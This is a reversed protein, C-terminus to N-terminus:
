KSKNMSKRHIRRVMKKVRSGMAIVGYYLRDTKFEEHLHVPANMIQDFENDDIRLNEKIENFYSNMMKEDYLPQKLVDLAESRTLQDSIIMSSLHSTRKDVGFKKTFWVLQIFATLKNELHKAGYYQFGCFQELEKFARNRNYDIYNLPKREKIGLEFRTALIRWNSTFRLKDIGEEGYKHYIDMLNVKDRASHTNGAQLICELAFNEGSLFYTTRYKKAESYLFAFLINDQPAAVNPVGAKMYAKILGNFQDKDPVINHIDIGTAKSLKAINSKSIDTDYGDDVHIALIRLGWKYGLYLLYSSDLGGSIGMICDYKKGKGDKKIEEVMRKIMLQGEGNPFYIHKKKILANTCYNCYGNGDFTILKDSSDNMVCRKCVRM